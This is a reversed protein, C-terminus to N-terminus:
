QRRMEFTHGDSYCWASRAWFSPNSVPAIVFPGAVTGIVTTSTAQAKVTGHAVFASTASVREVLDPYESLYLDDPNGIAFRVNGIPDVTGSFHDGKENRTIFDAGGLSVALTPGAQAVIATYRRSAFESGFVGDARDDCTGVELILTYTGSLDLRARDAILEVNRITTNTVEFEETVTVYGERSARLRVRGAVGYVAYAGDPGTLARLDVGSGDVTVGANGVAIGHDTIRGSLKYSGPLLVVVSAAGYHTTASQYVATIGVEGVKLGTVRGGPEMHVVNPDASSWQTRSTVDETTGDAYVASSRLQVSQEPAISAPVDLAIRVVNASPSSGPEAPPGPQTPTSQGDGCATVLVGALLVLAITTRTRCHTTM